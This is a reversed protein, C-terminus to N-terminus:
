QRVAKAGRERWRRVAFVTGVVGGFIALAVNAPEPVASIELGWDTVTGQDGSSFDAVFLTWSGNPDLGNFQDLLRTRPTTDVVLAPDVNRGDPAWSSGDSIKTQYDTVSQYLHIDGNAAGDDFKVNLGSDGYGFSDMATRGVRNLLVSFGSSHTLYAYFDGNYGGTINLRVNVDTIVTESIGSITRTDSWGTTNGDPIVGGNAFGSNWNFTHLAASAGNVMTLLAAVFLTFPLTKM